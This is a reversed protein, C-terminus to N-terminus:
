GVAASAANKQRLAEFLKKFHAPESVPQSPALPSAAPAPSPAVASGAPASFGSCTAAPPPAVAPAPQFAAGVVPRGAQAVRKSMEGDIANVLVSKLDGLEEGTMKDLHLTVGRSLGGGTLWNYTQLKGAQPFHKMVFDAIRIGESGGIPTETEWYKPQASYNTSPARRRYRRYAM